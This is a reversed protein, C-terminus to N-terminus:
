SSSLKNVGFVQKRTDEKARSSLPYLGGRCRGQLLVQKTEQDKILFFNPHFELFVNNDTTLRHVSVLSKDASPVHLINDLHLDRVPTHLTTSGINRIQMGAGNATHVQDHGKYRDRVSLKELEGTINDTACSDVYWNTDVGYSTTAAGATKTPHEEEDEDYRYWCISAEHGYKKCIQCQPKANPKQGGSKSSGGGSSRQPGDRGRGRGRNGGRRGHGGRGRNAANASSSFQGGGGQSGQYMELRADYALMEGYLDDLSVLSVRGLVSSVFPNYEYDLGNLIQTVVEEDDIIKGAAALDDKISMMKTFYTTTSMTGKKLGAFQMRLHAVRARSQAAFMKELASWLEASSELSAVQALVDKAVSNILYGLLQQDKALWKDYEENPVIMKKKEANEVAITKPPAPTKGELIGLLQAGRIAPLVQAKWLRFNDRTLKESVPPGLSPAGYPSSSAM